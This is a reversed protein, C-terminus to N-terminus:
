PLPPRSHCAGMHVRAMSKPAWPERLLEVVGLGPFLYSPGSQRRILGPGDFVRSELSIGVHPRPSGGVGDSVQSFAPVAVSYPRQKFTGASQTPM